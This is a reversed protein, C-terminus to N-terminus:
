PIPAKGHIALFVWAAILMAFILVVGLPPMRQVGQGVIRLVVLVVPERPPPPTSRRAAAAQQVNVHVVPTPEDWDEAARLTQLSSRADDLPDGSRRPLRSEPM